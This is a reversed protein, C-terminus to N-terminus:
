TFVLLASQAAVWWGLGCTSSRWPLRLPRVFPPPACPIAVPRAAACPLDRTTTSEFGGVKAGVRWKVEVEM